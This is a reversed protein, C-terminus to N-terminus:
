GPEDLRVISAIEAPSFELGKLRFRLHRRDAQADTVLQLMGELPRDHEVLEVRVRRGLIVGHRNEFAKKQEDL